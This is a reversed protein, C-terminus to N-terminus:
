DELPAVPTKHLLCPETGWFAWFLPSHVPPCSGVKGLLWVSLHSARYAESLGLPGLSNRAKSVDNEEEIFFPDSNM